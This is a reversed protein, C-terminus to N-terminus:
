YGLKLLTNPDPCNKIFKNLNKKSCVGPYDGIYDEMNRIIQFHLHPAYDGNVTADGLTAICAGAKLLQGVKISQISAVSLHGYLTYFVQDKISHKLIITPGYDGFNPNNKFSHVTADLPTYIKTGAAIWLDIGLHINREEEINQSKFYTSRKYINRKEAYGGFAVKKNHKKLYHQIFGQWDQSSSVNFTNLDSNNESLDISIYDSNPITADLVRLPKKHISKLFLFFDESHM